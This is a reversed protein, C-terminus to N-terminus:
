RVGSRVGSIVSTFGRLTVALTAMALTAMERDPVATIQDNENVPFRDLPQSTICPRSPWRSPWPLGAATAATREGRASRM